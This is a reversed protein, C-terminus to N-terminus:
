RVRCKQMTVGQCNEVVGWKLQPLKTTSCRHMHSLHVCQYLTGLSAGVYTACKVVPVLVGELQDGVYSSTVIYYQSSTGSRTDHLFSSSSLNWHVSHCNSGSTPRLPWRWAQKSSEWQGLAGM